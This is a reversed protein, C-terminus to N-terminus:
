HALPRRIALRSAVRVKTSGSSLRVTGNLGNPVPKQGFQEGAEAAGSGLDGKPYRHSRLSNFAERELCSRTRERVSSSPNFTETSALARLTIM